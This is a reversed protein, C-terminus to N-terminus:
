FAVPLCAQRAGAAGAPDTPLAHIVVSAAEGAPIVFPVVAGAIATGGRSVRFDLWVETSPSAQGGSNYHPGAAAGDGAVCPGVHVHAGYVTGAADRDMGRVVLLVLTRHRGAVAVVGAHAGDTANEVAPALDRLPGGTVIAGSAGAPLAGATLGAVVFTTVM